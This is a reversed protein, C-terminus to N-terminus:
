DRSEEQLKGESSQSAYGEPDRLFEELCTEACFYYKVGRYEYVARANEETVVMKCVPDVHTKVKM